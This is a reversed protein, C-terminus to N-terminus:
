KAKRIRSKHIVAIEYGYFNVLEEVKKFSPTQHDNEIQSLYPRNCQLENSVNQLTYGAEKRLEKLTQGLTM